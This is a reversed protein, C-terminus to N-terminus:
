ASTNGWQNAVIRAKNIIDQTREHTSTKNLLDIVNRLLEIDNVATVLATRYEACERSVQDLETELADIRHRLSKSTM